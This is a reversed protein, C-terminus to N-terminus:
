LYAQLMSLQDWTLDSQRTKRYAFLMYLRDASWCYYIIRLGGRKGHGAARWRFKRLGGTGPIVEGAKPHDALAAQLDLYEDDALLQVIQETFIPTEVFEM